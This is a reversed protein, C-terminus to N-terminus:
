ELELESYLILEQEYLIKCYERINIYDKKRKLIDIENHINKSRQLHSTENDYYKSIRKLIDLYNKNITNNEYMYKLDGYIPTDIFIDILKDYTKKILNDLMEDKKSSSSYEITTVLKYLNSTSKHIDSQYKNYEDSKKYKM